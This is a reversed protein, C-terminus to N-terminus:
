VLGAGKRICIRQLLYLLATTPDPAMTKEGLMGYAVREPYGCSRAFATDTHLPNEDGSLKRFQEMLEGTVRVQFSAKLGPTLDKLRYENM